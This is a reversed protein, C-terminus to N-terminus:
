SIMENIFPQRTSLRLQIICAKSYTELKKKSKCLFLSNNM